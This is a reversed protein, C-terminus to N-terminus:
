DRIVILFYFDGRLAKATGRLNRLRVRATNNEPNVDSIWWNFDQPNSYLQDNYGDVYQFISIRIDNVNDGFEPISFTSYGDGNGNIVHNMHHSSFSIRLSSSGNSTVNGNGEHTSAGLVTLSGTITANGQLYTNANNVMLGYNANTPGNIGIRGDIRTNGNVVADNTVTANGQLYSNANNVMLGYSGNTAGGIGIRGNIRGNGGAMMDGQFFSNANNVMLGYSANTAGGIGIRGQVAANGDVSGDNLVNLSHMGAKGSVQAQGYVSLMKGAFGEGGATLTGTWTKGGFVRLKAIFEGAPQGVILRDQVVGSQFAKIDGDLIMDGAIHLRELPTLTGIGTNQAQLLLASGSLLILLIYKM